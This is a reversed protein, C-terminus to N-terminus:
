AQQASGLISDLCTSKHILLPIVTINGRMAAEAFIGSPHLSFVGVSVILHIHSGTGLVWYLYILWSIFICIHYVTAM